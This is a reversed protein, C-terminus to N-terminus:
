TAHTTPDVHLITMTPSADGLEPIIKEWKLDQFKRYIPEDSPDKAPQGDVNAGGSQSLVATGTLIFAALAGVTALNRLLM